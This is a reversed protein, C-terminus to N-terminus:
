DGNVTIQLLVGLIRGAVKNCNTLSAHMWLNSNADLLGVETFNGTPSSATYTNYFQPNYQASVYISTCSQSTGPTPTWLATDTPLPAGTGTGLQTMTPPPNTTTTQLGALWNAITSCAYNTMTAAANSTDPQVLIMWQITLTQGSSKIENIVAHAWMNNNADFLGVETYAGTPDTTQYTINFQAYIGQSLSTSDVTRQTGSIPSWLTTDSPSPTGFGNGAGIQTPPPATTTTKVGALWNAVTSRMYYTDTNNYLNDSVVEGTEADRKVARIIGKFRLNSGTRDM